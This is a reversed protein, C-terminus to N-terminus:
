EKFEEFNNEYNGYGAQEKNVQNRFHQDRWDKFWERTSEDSFESDIEDDSKWVEPRPPTYFKFFHIIKEAFDENNKKDNYMTLLHLFSESKEKYDNEHKIDELKENMAEIVLSTFTYTRPKAYKLYRDYDANKIRVPRVRSKEGENCSPCFGAMNKYDVVNPYSHFGYGEKKPKIQRFCWPEFEPSGDNDLRILFGDRLNVGKRNCNKGFCEQEQETLVLNKWFDNAEEEIWKGEKFSYGSEEIYEHLREQSLDEMRESMKDNFNKMEEEKSSKRKERKVFSQSLDSAAYVMTWEKEEYKYGLKELSEHFYKTTMLIKAELEQKAEDQAKADPFLAAIDAKSQHIELDQQRLNNALHRMKNARPSNHFRRKKLYVAQSFVFQRSEELSAHAKRNM